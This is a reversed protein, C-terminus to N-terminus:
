EADKAFHALLRAEVDGQEALLAQLTADVRNGDCRVRLGAEIGPDVVLEVGPGLRAALAQREAEDWEPAHEIRWPGTPLARGAADLLHAVWAARSAPQRWLERLAQPLRPRAAALLALARRRAHARQATALRAQATALGEALRAREAAAGEHLRRRAERRAEALLGRSRERAAALEAACRSTKEAALLDLLAQASTSM